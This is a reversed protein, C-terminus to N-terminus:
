RALVDGGAATTTTALDAIEVGAPADDDLLRRVLKAAIEEPASAARRASPTNALDTRMPPPRAILVRVAPSATALWRALGETAAKAATLQPLDRSPEAVAPASCVLAWAGDPRLLPQLCALPVAVLDAAHGVFASLEAATHATLGMPLPPSAACLAIGDLPGDIAAAVHAMAQADAADATHLVLRPAYSGALAKVRAAADASRAYVAHVRLGRALLALTLAAGLGRSAGIVVASGRLEPLEGTGPLAATDPLPTPAFPFCEIVGLCRPEGAADGLMGDVLIRDTREDHERIAIRQRQAGGQAQAASVTVAACLGDFGALMMPLVTGVVNSAWAIGELLAPPVRDAGFRVALGELAAQQPHYEAAHQAGGGDALAQAHDLGAPPEPSARLRALLKGRGSLRVEWTGPRSPHRQATAVAVAGPLVPGPFLSHVSRLRAQDEAPLLGLMAVTLLGGYVIPEGFATRRAFAPDTHLPSRDGSAQAFSEMDEGDFRLEREIVGADTLPASM